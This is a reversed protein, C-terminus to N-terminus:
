ILPQQELAHNISRKGECLLSEERRTFCDSAPCGSKGERALTLQMTHVAASTALVALKELRQAEELLSSEVDLGQTKLTRFTQEIHWRRTYGHVCRLAQGMDQVPWTSLLRWLIPADQASTSDGEERVEIAWVALSPSANKDSCRRPWAIRTAGFRVSLRALRASRGGTRVPLDLTVSGRAPLGSIWQYLSSADGALVRDRCTRILLDTREDPLRDFMEHTDSERDAVVTVKDNHLLRGFRMEGARNGGLKRLWVSKQTLM